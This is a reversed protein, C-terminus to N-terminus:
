LRLVISLIMEISHEVGLTSMMKRFQQPARRLLPNRDNRGDGVPASIHVEINPTFIGMPTVELAWQVTFLLGPKVPNIMQMATSCTSGGLLHVVDPFKTKFHCFTRQRNHHCEAYHVLVQFFPQLAKDKEVSKIYSSLEQSALSDKVDVSLKTIVARNDLGGTSFVSFTSIFIKFYPFM